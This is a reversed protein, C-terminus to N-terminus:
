SMSIESVEEPHSLKLSEHINASPNEHAPNSASHSFLKM